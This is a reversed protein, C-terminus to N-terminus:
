ASRIGDRKRVVLHWHLAMWRDLPSLWRDLARVMPVLFSPVLNRMTVGGSALYSLWPLYDPEEVSLGPFLRAFRARDRFFVIWSLAQNADRMADSQDFAWTAAREDYPEPHFRRFFFRAFLTHPVEIMAIVGGPVLVREAEALFREVDPIHHFVHTLFLARVSGDAFPLERGDIILDAVGAVLDSTVVRPQLDKLWSGGSGLEVLLTRESGGPVSAEDALLRAYWQAYVGRLLPREQIIRRQIEFFSRTGPRAGRLRPEAFWGM